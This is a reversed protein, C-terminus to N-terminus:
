SWFKWWSKQERPEEKVHVEQIYNNEATATKPQQFYKITSLTYAYLEAENGHYARKMVRIAPQIVWGNKSTVKFNTYWQKDREDIDLTANSTHKLIVETVYGSMGLMMVGIHKAFAYNSKKLKGNEFALNLILDIHKVSEVSFDLNISDDIISRKFIDVAEQLEEHKSTSM